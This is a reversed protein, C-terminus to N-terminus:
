RVYGIVAIGIEIYNANQNVFERGYGIFVRLNSLYNAPGFSTGIGYRYPGAFGGFSIRMYDNSWHFGELLVGPQPTSSLNAGISALLGGNLGFWFKNGMEVEINDSVCSVRVKRTIPDSDKLEAKVKTESLKKIVPEKVPVQFEVLKSNRTTELVKIKTDKRNDERLDKFEKGTLEVFIASEDLYNVIEDMEPTIDSEKGLSSIPELYFSLFCVIISLKLYDKIKKVKDKVIETSNVENKIEEKKTGLHSDQELKVDIKVSPETPNVRKGLGFPSNSVGGDKRFKSIFFFLGAGVLGSFGVLSVTQITDM